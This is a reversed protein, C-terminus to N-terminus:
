DQEKKKRLEKLLDEVVKVASDGIERGGKSIRELDRELNEDLYKGVDQGLRELDERVREDILSQKGKYKRATTYRIKLASIEIKERVTLDDRFKRYWIESYQKYRRNAWRWDNARFKDANIEVNSVFRSFNVLYREKSGSILCSVVSFAIIIVTVRSAWNAKM